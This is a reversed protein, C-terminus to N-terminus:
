KRCRALGDSVPGVKMRVLEECHMTLAQVSVETWPHMASKASIRPPHLPQAVLPLLPQGLAREDAQLESLGADM